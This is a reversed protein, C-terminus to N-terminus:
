KSVKRMELEYLLEAGPNGDIDQRYDPIKDICEFNAKELMRVAGLNREDCTAYLCELSTKKIEKIVGILTETGYGKNWFGRSIWINISKSRSDEQYLSIMGIIANTKKNQIVLRTHYEDKYAGYIYKTFAEINWDRRFDVMYRGVEPDSGWSTYMLPIYEPIFKKIILRRTEFEM